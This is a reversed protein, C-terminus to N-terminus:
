NMIKRLLEGTDMFYSRNIRKLERLGDGLRNVGEATLLSVM